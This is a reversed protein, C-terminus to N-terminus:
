LDNMYPNLLALQILSMESAVVRGAHENQACVNNDMGSHRAAMATDELLELASMDNHEDLGNSAPRTSSINVGRGFGSSSYVDASSGANLNRGEVNGSSFAQSPFGSSQLRGPVRQENLYNSAARYSGTTHRVALQEMDNDSKTTSTGSLFNHPDEHIPEPLRQRRNLVQKDTAVAQFTQSTALHEKMTELSKLNTNEIELM